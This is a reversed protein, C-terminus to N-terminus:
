GTESGRSYKWDNGSVADANRRIEAVEQGEQLDTWNEGLSRRLTPSSWKIVTM